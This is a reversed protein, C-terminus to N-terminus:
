IAMEPCGWWGTQSRGIRTSQHLALGAPARSRSTRERRTLDCFESAGGEPSASSLCGILATVIVPPEPAPCVVIAATSARRPRADMSASSSGKSERNTQSRRCRPPVDLLAPSQRSQVADSPIPDPGGPRASGPRLMLSATLRRCHPWRAALPPTGGPPPPGAAQRPLRYAGSPCSGPRHKRRPRGDGLGVACLSCRLAYVDLAGIALDLGPAHQMFAGSSTGFPGSLPDVGNIKGLGASSPFPESHGPAMEDNEGARTGDDAAVNRRRLSHTWQVSRPIRPRQLASRHLRTAGRNVGGHANRKTPCRRTSPLARRSSGCRTMGPPSASDRSFRDAYSTVCGISPSPSRSGTGPTM